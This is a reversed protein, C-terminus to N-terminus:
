AMLHRISDALELRQTALVLVGVAVAVLLLLQARITNAREEEVQSDRKAVVALTLVLGVLLALVALLMVVSSVSWQHM